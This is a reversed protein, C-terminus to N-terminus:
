AAERDSARPQARLARFYAVGIATAIAFLVAFPAALWPGDGSVVGSTGVMGTLAAGMWVAMVVEIAGVLWGAPHRRLLLIGAAIGLPVQLGLDLAEVVHRVSALPDLWPEAGAVLRTAIDKSWALALGGSLVLSFVALTRRPAREGFAAPLAQVDITGIAMVLAPLATAFVAIHLPYLWTFPPATAMELYTYVLYALTGAWWLRAGLSRNALRLAAGGLPVAGLLTVASWGRAEALVTNAEVGPPTPFAGSWSLTVASALAAGLLSVTSLVLAARPLSRM